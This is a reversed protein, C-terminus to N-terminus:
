SAREAALAVWWLLALVLGVPFLILVPRASRGRAVAVLQLGTAALTALAVVGVAEQVIVSTRSSVGKSFHRDAGGIMGAIVFVAVAAAVLGIVGLAANRM